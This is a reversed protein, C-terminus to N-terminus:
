PLELREDGRALLHAELLAGQVEAPLAAPRIDLEGADLEVPLQEAHEPEAVALDHVQAVVGM